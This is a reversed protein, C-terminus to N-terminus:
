TTRSRTTANTGVKLWVVAVGVNWLLLCIKLALEGLETAAGALGAVAIICGFALLAKSRFASAQFAVCWALTSAAFCIAGCATLVPLVGISILRLLSRFGEIQGEADPQVYREALAPLVVGDILPFAIMAVLGLVGLVVACRVSAYDFGIRSGLDVYAVLIAVLLAAITGHVVRDATAHEALSRALDDITEGNTAPHFLWVLPMAISAALLLAGFAKSGGLNM